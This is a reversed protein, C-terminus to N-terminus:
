NRKSLFQSAMNEIDLKKDYTTVLYSLVALSSWDGMFMIESIPVGLSMLFRAGSRRMSHLGSEAPDKGRRAVLFKLYKLVESFLIPKGNYVFLPSDSSATGKSLSERIAVMTCLPSGSAEAVPIRLVRKRHKLTKTSHVNISYGFDTKDIDRRLILHDNDEGWKEPLLNCKCLLTRFSVVLAYWMLRNKCWQVEVFRHMSELDDVKLSMKQNSEQGLMSKLGELVMKIFYKERYDADFGYFKHLSIIASLYNNITVFKM